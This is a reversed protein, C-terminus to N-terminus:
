SVLRLIQFDQIGEPEEENVDVFIVRARPISHKCWNIIESVQERTGEFVAEVRGDSLNKVWGMLGLERAKTKTNARFFVGQVKGTFFVHSRVLKSNM